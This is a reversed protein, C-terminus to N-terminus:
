LWLNRQGVRRGRALMPVVDNERPIYTYMDADFARASARALVDIVRKVDRSDPTGGIVGCQRADNLYRATLRVRRAV